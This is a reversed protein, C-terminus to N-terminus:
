SQPSLRLLILRRLMLMLAPFVLLLTLPDYIKCSMTVVWLLIRPYLFKSSVRLILHLFALIRSSMASALLFSYLTLTHSAESDEADGSKNESSNNKQESGLRLM